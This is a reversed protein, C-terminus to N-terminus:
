GMGFSKECLSLVTSDGPAQTWTCILFSQGPLKLSKGLTLIPNCCLGPEHSETWLENQGWTARLGHGVVALAGDILRM